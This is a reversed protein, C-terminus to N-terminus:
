YGGSLRSEPFNTVLSDELVQFSRILSAIATEEDRVEQLAADRAQRLQQSRQAADEMKAKAGSQAFDILDRLIVDTFRYNEPLTKRVRELGEGLLAGVREMFTMEPRAEVDKRKIEEERAMVAEHLYKSMSDPFICALPMEVQFPRPTAGAVKKMTGDPMMQVFNKGLASVPILRISTKQTRRARVFEVFPPYSMLRRVVDDLTYKGELLDWKTLIFHVPQEHEQMMQLVPTLDSLLWGGRDNSSLLNFVKYGDLIGLLVDAAAFQEYLRNVEATEEFAQNIKGGAYDLYTFRLAPYVERGERQVNCTFTWETPEVTGKPWPSTTEAIEAYTVNLLNRQAPSTAIFFGTDRSQISLRHYMSALFVTKGSGSTGLVVVKLTNM